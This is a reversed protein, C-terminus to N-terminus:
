PIRLNATGAFTEHPRITNSLHRCVEVRRTMDAGDAPV